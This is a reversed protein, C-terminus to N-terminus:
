AGRKEGVAEAQTVRDVRVMNRRDVVCGCASALRDVAPRPRNKKESPWESTTKSSEIAIPKNGRGLDAPRKSVELGEAFQRFSQKPPTGTATPRNDVHDHQNGHVPGELRDFAALRIRLAIEVKQEIVATTRARRNRGKNLIMSWSSADTGIPKRNPSPKSVVVSTAQEADGRGLGCGARGEARKQHKRRQEGGAHREDIRGIAHQHEAGIAPSEHLRM